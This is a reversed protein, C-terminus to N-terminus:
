SFLKHLSKKLYTLGVKFWMAGSTRDYNGFSIRDLLFNESNVNINGSSSFIREAGLRKLLMIHRETFCTGPQGNPFAFYKVSNNLNSLLHENQIYQDMFEQDSLAEANWHEYLHNGYIVNKSTSWKMVLDIEAFKGQYALIAEDNMESNEAFFVRAVDPRLTLHYPPEIQNSSCYGKFAPSQQGMFCAIASILPKREIVSGMNLFFLSPVNMEELIALGNEFSSLMGDDFTILAASHPLEANSNLQEPHVITFNKKIWNIQKRFTGTSVALGYDLSFQSPTDTVEHYVFVTIGNKIIKRASPLNSFLKGLPVKIIDRLLLTSKKRYYLLKDDFVVIEM